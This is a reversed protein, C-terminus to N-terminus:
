FFLASKLYFVKPLRIKRKWQEDTTINVSFLMRPENCIPAIERERRGTEKPILIVKFWPSSNAFHLDGSPKALGWFRKNLCPMNECSVSTLILTSKFRWPKFNWKASPYMENIILNMSHFISHCFFDIIM